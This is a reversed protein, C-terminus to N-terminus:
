AGARFLEHLFPEFVVGRRKDDGLRLTEKMCKATFEVALSVAEEASRGVTLGGALVSAFLDGTGHYQAPLKETEALFFSDAQTDYLMAGIGHASLEVGTLVVRKAGLAALRRLLERLEADTLSDRYSEGLLAYAETLNPLILDAEECLMRMERAFAEDFGTYLRGHDGMVPDVIVLDGERKLSRFLGRIMQIQGISGLYGSYFSDFRFGEKEWHARIHPLQETLDCFSAGSFGTHTSLVATPLIASEIGFASLIPLAVTGSCRGVCSIDQVTLIRKM